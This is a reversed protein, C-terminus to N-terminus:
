VEKISTNLIHEYYKSIVDEIVFLKRTLEQIEKDKLYAMDAHSESEPIRDISSIFLSKYSTPKKM